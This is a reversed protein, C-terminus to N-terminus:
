GAKTTSLALSAYDSTPQWSLRRGQEGAKTRADDAICLDAVAVLRGGDFLLPLLPRCWPPVALEQFVKSLPRRVGQLLIRDAPQWSRVKLRDIDATLGEETSTSASLQGHATKLVSGLQWQHVRTEPKPPSGRLLWLTDRYGRISADSCLFHPSRAAMIQRDLEHHQAETLCWVSHLNLWTHLLNLRRPQTLRRYASKRIHLPPAISSLALRVLDEHATETLVKRAAEMRTALQCIRSEAQPWYQNLAPLLHQRLRVREVDLSANAPDELWCLNQRTAFESLVTRPLTM